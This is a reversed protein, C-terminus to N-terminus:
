PSLTEDVSREERVKAIAARLGKMMALGATGGDGAMRRDIVLEMAELLLRIVEAERPARPDYDDLFRVALIGIESVMPYGFTQGQDQLDQFRGALAQIHATDPQELFARYSETLRQVDERVWRHYSNTMEAIVARARAIPDDSVSPAPVDRSPDDRATM